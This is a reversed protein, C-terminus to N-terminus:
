VSCDNFFLNVGGKQLSLRQINHQSVRIKRGGYPYCLKNIIYPGRLSKLGIIRYYFEDRGQFFKVNFGVADSLYDNIFAGAGNNCVLMDSYGRNCNGM